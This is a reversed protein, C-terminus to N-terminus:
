GETHGGAEEYVDALLTDYSQRAFRSLERGAEQGAATLLAARMAEQSAFYLELIRYYPARGDASGLVSAVQRREIDPIREVLALFDAYRNEFAEVDIPDRFLIMFKVM